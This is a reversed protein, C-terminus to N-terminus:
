QPRSNLGQRFADARYQLEIDVCGCQGALGRDFPVTQSPVRKLYFEINITQDSSHADCTYNMQANKTQARTPHEGPGLHTAAYYLEERYGTVRGFM